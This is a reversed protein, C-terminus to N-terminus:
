NECNLQRPGPFGVNSNLRRTGAAGAKVLWCDMTPCALAGALFPLPASSRCLRYGAVAERNKCCPTVDFGCRM